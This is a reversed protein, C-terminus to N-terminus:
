FKSINGSNWCVTHPLISKSLIKLIPVLVPVWFTILYKKFYKKQFLIKFVKALRFVTWIILNRLLYKVIYTQQIVFFFVNTFTIFVNGYKVQKQHLPRNILDSVNVSHLNCYYEM